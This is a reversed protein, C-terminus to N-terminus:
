FTKPPRLSNDFFGTEITRPFSTKDFYHNLGSIVFVAQDLTRSCVCVDKTQLIRAVSEVVGSFYLVHLFNLSPHFLDRQRKEYLVGMKQIKTQEINYLKSRFFRQLHDNYVPGRVTDFKTPLSISSNRSDKFWSINIVWNRKISDSADNMDEPKIFYQVYKVM